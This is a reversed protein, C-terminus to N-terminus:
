HDDYGEWNLFNHLIRLGVRQSKEPHFQLGAVNGCAAVAAFPGGYDASAVFDARASPRCYYSHVFYAHAGAPVGALLPHVREPQLENWGMHPVKLGEGQFRVVAGPLLGLGRHQGMEESDDFLLQMGLCIGLLPVGAAAAALLPERLGRENLAAMGAAFAGVGPLVLRAAGQLDGPQAALRVEAGAQQLAKEVSRLNGFGYDILTVATM